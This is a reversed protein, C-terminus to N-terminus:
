DLLGDLEARLRRLVRAEAAYVAAVTLGTERAVDAAARAEITLGLCAKWDAAPLESQFMQVAAKLLFPLYEPEWLTEAAAPVPTDAQAAPGGSPAIQKQLLERRQAHAVSRLWARFGGPAGIRFESLNQSVKALISLAVDAAAAGQLGSRCAWLFLHTSYLDVLRGWDAPNGTQQLRLLLGPQSSNM